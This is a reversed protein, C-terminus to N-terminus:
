THITIVLTDRNTRSEFIFSCVQVLGPLGSRHGLIDEVTVGETYGVGSMVFDEPLLTSMVSDYQVEPFSENDDVLLAVAAATLSKASSAIDFLTDATCPREPDLCAFGYAKSEIEGDQIVAIALGPVHHQKMLDKV